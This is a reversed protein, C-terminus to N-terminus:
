RLASLYRSLTYLQKHKQIFSHLQTAVVEWYRCVQPLSCHYYAIGALRCIGFGYSRVAHSTTKSCMKAITMM